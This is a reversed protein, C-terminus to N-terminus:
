QEVHFMKSIKILEKKLIFETNELISLTASIGARLGQLAINEYSSPGNVEGAFFINKHINSEFNQTLQEKKLGEYEICYGPRIISANELGYFKNLIMNQEEDSFAFNFKNLYLENTSDGESFMEIELEDNKSDGLKLNDWAINAIREFKKEKYKINIRNSCKLIEDKKISTKFSYYKQWIVDKKYGKACETVKYGEINSKEESKVKKIKKLSISRKDIRPCIFVKEKNFDYGIEKLNEYFRKSNIEGHRGAAIENKGWFISADLFTGVTVIVAQSFFISGDSLRVMYKKNENENEIKIDTVLGQRTHLNEQNELCYKYFLTFKRKDVLNSCGFYNNEREKKQAIKNEYIANNIFGGLANIENLLFGNFIGGIKGSYKLVSPSDMSINIILTKLGFRASIIGAESGALGSGIVIINYIDYKNNNM